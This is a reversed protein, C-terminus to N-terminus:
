IFYVDSVRLELWYLPVSFTVVSCLYTIQWVELNRVQEQYQAVLQKMQQLEENKENYDKQQEHQIAFARKLIANERILSDLQEKLM